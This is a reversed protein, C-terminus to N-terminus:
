GVIQRDLINEKFTVLDTDNLMSFSTIVENWFPLLGKLNDFSYSKDLNLNLMVDQTVFNSFYYSPIYTWTDNDHDSSIFRNIWKAKLSRFFCQIDTMNLGGDKIAKTVKGRCVKDRKGWLFNFLLKNIREVFGEPTVLVSAPLVVKSIGLVKIILVKGFLSLERQSWSELSSIITNLKSYELYEM